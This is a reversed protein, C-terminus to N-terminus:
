PALPSPATQDPHNVLSAATSFAVILDGSSSGSYSGLRALGMAARKALRDLQTPILPANTGVVIIISGADPPPTRRERQRCMEAAEGPRSTPTTVRCGAHRCRKDLRPAPSACCRAIARTASFSRGSWIRTLVSRSRALPRGSGAKFGFCEMGTGWRRQGRRHSRVEGSRHGRHRDGAPRPLRPHRETGRGLDRRRRSRGSRWLATADMVPHRRLGTRHM